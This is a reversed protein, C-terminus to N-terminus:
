YWDNWLQSKIAFRARRLIAGGALSDQVEWLDKYEDDDYDGSAPDYLPGDDMYMAMDLYVRADVWWKFASDDSEFVLIGDESTANLPSSGAFAAGAMTLLVVITALTVFWKRM